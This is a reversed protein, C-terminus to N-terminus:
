SLCLPSLRHGEIWLVLPVVMSEYVSLGSVDTMENCCGVLSVLKAKSGRERERAREPERPEESRLPARTAYELVPGADRLASLRFSPLIKKKQLSRLM